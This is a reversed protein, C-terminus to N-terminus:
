RRRRRDAVYARLGAVQIRFPNTGVDGLSSGYAVPGTEPEYTGFLRDWIVFTSGYNRTPGASTVRHHVRHNSPTDFVADLLPLKGIAETHTWLQSLRNLDILVLVVVPDFGIAVIPLYVVDDVIRQIWSARGGLTVDYHSSSHHVSHMAWGLETEHLVRHWGYLTLDIALYALVGTLLTTRVDLPTLEAVALFASVRLPRTIARLVTGVGHSVVNSAMERRDVGVFGRRALLALEVTVFSAVAVAFAWGWREFLGRLVDHANM